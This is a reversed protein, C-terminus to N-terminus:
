EVYPITPSVGSPLDNSITSAEVSMELQRENLSMRHRRASSAMDQSPRSSIEANRGIKDSWPSDEQRTPVRLLLASLVTREVCM